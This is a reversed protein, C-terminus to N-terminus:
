GYIECKYRHEFVLLYPNKQCKEVLKQIKLLPNHTETCLGDSLFLSEEFHLEENGNLEKLDKMEMLKKRDAMVGYRLKRDKFKLIVQGRRKMRHCAHLDKDEVKIHTLSLAKCVQEELNQDSSSRPVPRIKIVERRVYQAKSLANKEQEIVRNRLPNSIM